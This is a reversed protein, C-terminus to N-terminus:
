RRPRGAARPAEPADIVPVPQTPPSLLFGRAKVYHQWAATKPCLFEAGAKDYLIWGQRTQDFKPEPAIAM